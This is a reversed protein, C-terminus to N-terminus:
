AKEHRGRAAAEAAGGTSDRRDPNHRFSPRHNDGGEYIPRARRSLSEAVESDAPGAERCAAQFGQKLLAPEGADLSTAGPEASVPKIARPVSAGERRGAAVAAGTTAAAALSTLPNRTKM